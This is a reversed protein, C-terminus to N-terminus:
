KIYQEVEERIARVAKRIGRTEGIHAVTLDYLAIGDEREMAEQEMAAMFKELHKWAPFGVMARFSEAMEKNIVPKQHYVSKAM